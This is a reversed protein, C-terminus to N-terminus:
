RGGGASRAPSNYYITEIKKEEEISERRERRGHYEAGNVMLIRGQALVFKDQYHIVLSSYSM